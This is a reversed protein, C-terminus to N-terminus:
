SPGRDEGHQLPLGLDLARPRQILEDKLPALESLAWPVYSFGHEVARPRLRPDKRFGPGAWSLEPSGSRESGPLWFTLVHEGRRSVRCVPLERPELTTTVLERAPEFRLEAEEFAVLGGGGAVRGAILARARELLAAKEVYDRADRCSLRDLVPAAIDLVHEADPAVERDRYLRVTALYARPVHMEDLRLELYGEGRSGPEARLYRLGM